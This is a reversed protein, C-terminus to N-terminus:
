KIHTLTAHGEITDKVIDSFDFIMTFISKMSFYQLVPTTYTSSGIDVPIYGLVLAQVYLKAHWRAAGEASM